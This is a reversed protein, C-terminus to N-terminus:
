TISDMWSEEEVALIMHKYIDIDWSDDVRFRVSQQTEGLIIGRLAVRLGASKVQLVVSQDAWQGYVGQVSPVSQVTQMEMYGWPIASNTTVLVDERISAPLGM